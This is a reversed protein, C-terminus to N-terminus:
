RTLTVPQRVCIVSGTDRDEFKAQVYLPFPANGPDVTNPHVKISAVDVPQGNKGIVKGDRVEAKLSQSYITFTNPRGVPNGDAGRELEPGGIGVSLRGDSTAPVVTFQAQYSRGLVMTSPAKFTIKVQQPSKPKSGPTPSASSQRSAASDCADAAQAPAALVGTLTMLAAMGVLTIRHTM